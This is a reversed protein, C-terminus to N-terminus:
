ISFRTFYKFSGPNVDKPRWKFTINSWLYDIVEKRDVDKYITILNYLVKDIFDEMNLSESSISVVLEEDTIKDKAIGSHWYKDFVEKNTCNM